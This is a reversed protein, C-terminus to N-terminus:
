VVATHIRIGQKFLCVIVHPRLVHSVTEHSVRHLILRLRTEVGDFTSECQCM